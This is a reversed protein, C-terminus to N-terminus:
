PRVSGFGENRLFDSILGGIEAHLAERGRGGGDECIIEDGEGAAALLPEAGPKCRAFVSFHSMDAIEAYDTTATPLMSALHRSEAEVPLDPLPSGAGIVLVPTEIAALSLPDFAQTLGLDLSIAASLRPDALSAELRDKTAPEEGIGVKKVWVCDSREPHTACYRDHLAKDFRAGAMAMVTYGGLSHGIAAIRNEDILPRWANDALLHDIIRSLDRPREWLKPTEASEKNVWATGPHNPAVAIMGKSALEAALWGLNSWRGNLGHSFLVMPFRGEAQPADPVAEFGFLARNDGFLAPKGDALAPYLVHVDLPRLGDPDAIQMDAHGVAYPEAFATSTILLATALTSVFGTTRM